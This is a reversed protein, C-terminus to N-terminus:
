ARRVGFSALVFVVAAVLGVFIASPLWKPKYEMRRRWKEDERTKMLITAGEDATIEGAAVQAYVQMSSM